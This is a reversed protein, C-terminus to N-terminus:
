PCVPRGNQSVKKGGQYTASGSLTDMYKPDFPLADCKKNAEIYLAKCAVPDPDKAEPDLGKTLPGRYCVGTDTGKKYAEDRIKDCRVDITKSELHDNPDPERCNPNPRGICSLLLFLFILTTIHKMKYGLVAEQIELMEVGGEGHAVLESQIFNGREKQKEKREPRLTLDPSQMRQVILIYFGILIM